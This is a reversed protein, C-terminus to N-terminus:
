LQHYNANSRILPTKAVRDVTHRLGALWCDPTIYYVESMLWDTALTTMDEPVSSAFELLVATPGTLM